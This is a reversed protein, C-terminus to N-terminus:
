TPNAPWQKLLLQVEDYQQGLLLREQKDSAGQYASKLAAAYADLQSRMVTTYTTDFTSTQIATTLKKDTTTNRKLALEKSEVKRGHQGLFALWEQQHTKVGLQTNIAANLVPQSTADEGMAALRVVEQESQTISVITELNTKGGFIINVLLAGVVMLIVAGGIIFLIRSVFPDSGVGGLVGKKIPKQPNLIFDYNNDSPPPTPGPVQPQDPYM